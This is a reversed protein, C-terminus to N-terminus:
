HVHEAAAECRVQAHVKLLARTVHNTVQVEFSQM